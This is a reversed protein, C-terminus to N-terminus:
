SRLLSANPRSPRAALKGLLPSVDIVVLAASLEPRSAFSSSAAWPRVASSCALTSSSSILKFVLSSSTRRKSSSVLDLM